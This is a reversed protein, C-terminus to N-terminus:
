PVIILCIHHKYVTVPELYVLSDNIICIFNNAIANRYTVALKIICLKHMQANHRLHEM